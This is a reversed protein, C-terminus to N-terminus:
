KCLYCEFWVSVKISEIKDSIAQKVVAQISHVEKSFYGFNLWIRLKRTRLNPCDDYTYKWWGCRSVVVGVVWWYEIM